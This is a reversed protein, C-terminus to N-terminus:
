TIMVLLAAQVVAEVAVDVVCFKLMLAFAVYVTLREPGLTM